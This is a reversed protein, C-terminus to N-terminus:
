EVPHALGKRLAEDLIVRLKKSAEEALRAQQEGLKAQEDGLRAQQEGLKAQMEGLKAQKDGAQAQLAGIRAQMDGLTAQLDSLDDQRVLKGDSKQLEQRLKEVQEKLREIDQSSYQASVTVQAQQQGLRGQEEGLKGQIEGLEGQRRGLEQQPRFLEKAREVTAPDTIYYLKQGREFWIFDGDIKGKLRRVLQIDSTSGSMTWSDGSVVAFHDGNDDSQVFSDTRITQRSTTSRQSPPPTAPKGSESPAQASPPQPPNQARITCGAVLAIVPAMSAVLVLRRGWGPKAPVATEALIRDVRRSVTAPRAMAVGASGPQRKKAFDLLIEAYSPRDVLQEIAADDSAAESLEAIRKTLWWSLPSFWFVVGHLRALMQLYFDRREVHSREHSLVARRKAADWEPWEAPILITSGFTVPVSIDGSGRVKMGETWDESVPAARHWLRATLVLGITMRLMLLTAIALYGNALATRWDFPASTPTKQLPVTTLTITRIVPAVRSVHAARVPVSLVPWRMLLPMLLAAALVVTWALVQTQTSRVRLAKLGIWVAGGLVLSRLASELLLSLM